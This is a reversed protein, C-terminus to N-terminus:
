GHKKDEVIELTALYDRLDNILEVWNKEIEDTRKYGEQEISGRDTESPFHQSRYPNAFQYANLQKSALDLISKFKRYNEKTIFPARSGLIRIADDYAIQAKDYRKTCADLLGKDDDHYISTIRDLATPYLWFIDNVLTNFSAFLDQYIQFAVDFRAKKVYASQELIWKYKELEQDMKKQYKMQLREAIRDGCYKVIAVIVVGIGGVSAIIALAIKWIADWDM